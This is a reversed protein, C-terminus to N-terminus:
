AGPPTPDFAGTSYAVGCTPCTANEVARHAASLTPVKGCSPCEAGISKLVETKERNLKFCVYIMFGFLGFVIGGSIVLEAVEPLNSRLLLILVLSASALVVFLLRNFPKDIVRFRAEMDEKANM